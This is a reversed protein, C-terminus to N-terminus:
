RTRAAAPRLDRIHEQLVSAPVFRLLQSSVLSFVLADDIRGLVPIFDPLLDIPSVLYLAPLMALGRSWMPVRSDRVLRWILRAKASWPLAGVETALPPQKKTAVKRAVWLGLLV